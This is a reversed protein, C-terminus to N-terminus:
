VDVDSPPNPPNEPTASVPPNLPITCDVLLWALASILYAGAVLLFVPKWEATYQVVAGFVIPSVLGGSGGVMNNLGFATATASGGIDTVTGWVTPQSWDSFFKVFFLIWCFAYPKDYIGLAAIVLGAAIGKGLGGVATRSWRRNGTVRILVDNLMGGFAGGLAGGVLPLSAYIGMEAYNLGHEKYLFYPIWSVYIADAFTSTFQQVLLFFLNLLSRPSTRAILERFSLKDNLSGGTAELEEQEILRAEAENARSHERPSNRYLALFVVGFLIGAVAFVNIAMRWDFALLGILVSAFLVNSSAGGIRGFFSAICGQLSTRISRPFWMRSVKSVTPYCGAQTLGFLVRTATLGKVGTVWAHMGLALSWAIIITGLFLHAGFIDCLVGTPVQALSYATGFVADLGGLETETLGFEEEIKPKILAFTYRHLYLFWSTGCGLAFVLWRIGTPATVAAQPAAAPTDPRDPSETNM